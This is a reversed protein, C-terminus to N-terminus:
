VSVYWTPKYPAAATPNKVACYQLRSTILAQGVEKASHSGGQGSYKGVTNSGDDIDGATPMSAWIGAVKDIADELDKKTGANRGSLYNGLTSNDLFFASTAIKIQNEKNYKWTLITPETKEIAMVNSYLTAPIMQFLGTAFLSSNVISTPTPCDVDTGYPNVEKGGQNKRMIKLVELVTLDELKAANANYYKTTGNPTVPTATVSKMCTGFIGRNYANPDGGFSEGNWIVKFIPELGPGDTITISKNSNNKPPASAKAPTTAKMGEVEAGEQKPGCISNLTTKWEGNSITHSIGSCIFQIADQYSKPLLRTDITYSEYIRPGSLGVMNLELDFPIFGIPTIGKKPDNQNKLAFASIETKFIDTAANRAQSIEADSLTTDNTKNILNQFAAINNIYESDVDTSETVEPGSGVRKSIIRDTLGVNWKSLATADEGVTAGNAQAGVTAMTAFANSLKTRFNINHVFSGGNVGKNGDATILFEVIKKQESGLKQFQGPILTNDIIRFTNADENYIVEFNNVNGLANQIGSLLKKLFTYLNANGDKDDISESLTKAIYEMNVRIDMTRGAYNKTDSLDKFGPKNDKELDKYVTAGTSSTFVGSANSNTFKQIVVTLTEIKIPQINYVLSYNPSFVDKWTPDLTTYIGELVTTDTSLGGGTRTEIGKVYYKNEETNTLYAIYEDNFVADKNELNGNGGAQWNNAIIKLQDALINIKNNDTGSRLESIVGATNAYSPPFYSTIFSINPKLAYIAATTGDASPNGTYEELTKTKSSNKTINVLDGNKDITQLGPYLTAFSSILTQNAAQDKSNPASSPYYVKTINITEEDYYLKGAALQATSVSTPYPILCVRPDISAHKPFTFCFNSNYNYDIKIIPDNSHNTDYFVLFSEIIRLLTGLKIYSQRNGMWGPTLKGFNYMSAENWTLTNGGTKTYSAKIGSYTSLTDNNVRFKGSNDDLGHAYTRGVADNVNEAITWLLRNLTSKYANTELNTQAVGNPIAKNSPANSNIKLSEIVDGAARAIMNIDYGGDPNITWDFNTVLGFFADYNGDSAERETQIKELMLTQSVGGNLFIDSLDHTSNVLEGKNNFYLSHGWELLLSYKLRLYLAEIIQFQQLNHCKINVTAERLSGRNLSKITASTIGPPPVLGYSTYEPSAFGYSSNFSYGVGKTFDYSGSTANYTQAAFLKFHKALLNGKYVTSNLELNNKVFNESVNVGSSLRLFANNANNWRIVDADTQGYKLKEQRKIVQERVYKDFGRGIVDGM